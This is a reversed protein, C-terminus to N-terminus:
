AGLRKAINDVFVDRELASQADRQISFAWNVTWAINGQYALNVAYAVNGAAALTIAAAVWFALCTTGADGGDALDAETLGFEDLIASALMEQGLELANLIMPRNGSQMDAAFATLFGRHAAVRAVISDVRDIYEQPPSAEADAFEPFNEGVPGLGFFLGKMISAGDYHTVKEATGGFAATGSASAPAALALVLLMALLAPLTRFAKM